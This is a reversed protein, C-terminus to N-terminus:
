EREMASCLVRSVAARQILNFTFKLTLNATFREGDHRRDV